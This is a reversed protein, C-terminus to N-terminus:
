SDAVKEPKESRNFRAKRRRGIVVQLTRNVEIFLQHM